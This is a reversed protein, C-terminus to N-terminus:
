KRVSQKPFCILLQIQGVWATTPQDRSEETVKKCITTMVNTAM